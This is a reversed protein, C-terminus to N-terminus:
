GALVTLQFHGAKNLQKSFWVLHVTITGRFKHGSYKVTVGYM